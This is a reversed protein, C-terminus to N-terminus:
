EDSTEVEVYVRATRGSSTQRRQGSDALVDMLVLERIRASATQHRLGTLIEIEDCTWGKEEEGDGEFLARIVARDNPASSRKSMAAAESTDNGAVFPPLGNYPEHGSM